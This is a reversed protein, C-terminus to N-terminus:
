NERPIASNDTFGLDTDGAELRVNTATETGMTIRTLPPLAGLSHSWPDPDSGERATYTQTKTGMTAAANDPAATLSEQFRLIFAESM